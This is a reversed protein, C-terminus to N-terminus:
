WEKNLKKVEVLLWSCIDKLKADKNMCKNKM